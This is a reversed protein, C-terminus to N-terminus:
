SEGFRTTQEEIVFEEDRLECPVLMGGHKMILADVKYVPVCPYVSDTSIGTGEKYEMLIEELVSPYGVEVSHYTQNGDKRPSCYHARSAQVSMTFGDRCRIAPTFLGNERYKQIYENINM